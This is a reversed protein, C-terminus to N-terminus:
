TDGKGEVVGAGDGDEGGDEEEEKSSLRRQHFGLMAGAAQSAADTLVVRQLVFKVLKGLFFSHKEGVDHGAPKEGIRVTGPNPVATLRTYTPAGAGTGSPEAYQLTM